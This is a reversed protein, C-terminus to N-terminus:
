KEEETTFMYNVLAFITFYMAYVFSLELTAEEVREEREIEDMENKTFANIGEGANLVDPYKTEDWLWREAESFFDVVEPVEQELNRVEDFDVFTRKKLHLPYKERRNKSRGRM